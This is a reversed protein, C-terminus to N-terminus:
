NSAEKENGWDWMEEPINVLDLIERSSIIIKNINGKKIKSAFQYKLFLSPVLFVYLLM